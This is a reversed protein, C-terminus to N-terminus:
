LGCYLLNVPLSSSQGTILPTICASQFKYLSNNAAKRLKLVRLRTTFSCHEQRGRLSLICMLGEFTLPLHHNKGLLIPGTYDGQAFRLTESEPCGSAESREAHCSRRHDNCKM